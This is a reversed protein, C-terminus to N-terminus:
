RTGGERAQRVQERRQALVDDKVVEFTGCIEAFTLEGEKMARTLVRRLEADLQRQAELQLQNAVNIDIRILM